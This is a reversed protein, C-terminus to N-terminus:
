SHTHFRSMLSGGAGLMQDLLRVRDYRHHRAVNPPVSTSGDEPMSCATLPARLEPRWRTEALTVSRLSDAGRQLVLVM